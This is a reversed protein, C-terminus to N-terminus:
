KYAAEATRVYNIVESVATSADDDGILDAELFTRLPLMHGKWSGVHEVAERRIAPRALLMPNPLRVAAQDLRAVATSADTVIRITEPDLHILHPFRNTPLFAVTEYPEQVRGDYGTIPVLTGVPSDAFATLDM